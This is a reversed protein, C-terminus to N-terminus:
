EKTVDVSNLISNRSGHSMVEVTLTVTSIDMMLPSDRPHPTMCTAFNTQEDQLRPNNRGIMRTYGADELHASYEIAVAHLIQV